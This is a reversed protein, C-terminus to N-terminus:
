KGLISKFYEFFICKLGMKQLGAHKILNNQKLINDYWSGDQGQIKETSPILKVDILIQFKMVRAKRLQEASFYNIIKFKPNNGDLLM